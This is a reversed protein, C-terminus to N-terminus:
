IRKRPWGWELWSVEGKLLLFNLVEVTGNHNNLRSLHCQTHTHTHTHAGTKWYVRQPCRLHRTCYFRGLYISMQKWQLKLIGALSLKASWIDL